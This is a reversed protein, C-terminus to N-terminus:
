PLLASVRKKLEAAADEPSMLGLMAAQFTESWIDAVRATNDFAPIAPSGALFSKREEDAYPLMERVKPDDYASARVPGNGALAERVTNEPSSAERIFSWALDKNKANAPIAMAWYEFIGPAVEHGSGTAAPVAVTKIQGPYKSRKPDNLQANRAMPYIVMAVRGQSMWELPSNQDFTTMAEPLVGEKFLANITQYYNVLAEPPGGFKMEPTIFEGGMARLLSIQHTYAGLVLGYTRTGDPRTFSLKRADEILEEATAPPGSIGREKFIAENYHLGQTAHRYPIAYVKGGFTMAKTMPQSIDDFKEIPEKNLYEDLPTLLAAINPTAWANLVFGINVTTNGLSLERFLRERLPDNGLTIWEVTANHSKRWEETVDGTPGATITDQHVKHGMVVLKESAQAPQWIMAATVAAICLTRKLVHFKTAYVM